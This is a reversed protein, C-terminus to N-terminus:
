GITRIGTETLGNIRSWREINNDAPDLSFISFPTAAWIKNALLELSISQHYSLHERWQGIPPASQAIASTYCFIILTLLVAQRM